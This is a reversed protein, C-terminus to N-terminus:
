ASARSHSVFTCRFETLAGRQFGCHRVKAGAAHLFKQVPEEAADRGSAPKGRQRDVSEKTRRLRHVCQRLDSSNTRAPRHDIRRLAEGANLEFNQDVRIQPTHWFRTRGDFYCDRFRDGNLRSTSLIEGSPISFLLTDAPIKTVPPKSLSGRDHTSSTGLRTVRPRSRLARIFGSWRSKPCIAALSGSSRRGVCPAKLQM